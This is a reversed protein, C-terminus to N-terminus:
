DNLGEALVFGDVDEKSVLAVGRHDHVPNLIIVLDHIYEIRAAVAFKLSVRRCGDLPLQLLLKEGEVARPVDCFLQVSLNRGDLELHGLNKPWGLICLFSVGSRGM